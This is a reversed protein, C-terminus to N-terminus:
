FYQSTSIYVRDTFSDSVTKRLNRRRNGSSSRANHESVDARLRKFAGYELVLARLRKKEKEDCFAADIAHLNTELVDERTFGMKALAIRYQWALSTHFVAPDDSNLSFAIGCEKMKVSPHCKWDKEEGDFVWGGTELSSTPCVEVHVNRERVEKMLQRSQTMRYGHGVRSAGYIFIAARVNELARDTSEGAHLTIPIGERKARMIMEHHPEYLYKHNEGDFHEEGAAVDVGVTACPYEYRHKKVMELTPMAWDPRWTLGCLIQNVTIKFQKCGRRLGRTVAQFVAEADIRNTKSGDEEGGSHRQDEQFSEALFHPSYRVETYLTNQEFQRQCFDFALQEILDLNRRVLPMFIEFCNLMAKLSRYGRCTCLNHFERSSSCEKVLNRVHLQEGSDPEWPLDVGTPLCLLSEPNDNMYRWLFDPDFTGDLHVHLEVKPFEQVFLEQDNSYSHWDHDESLYRVLRASKHEEKQNNDDVDGNNADSAGTLRRSRRRKNAVSIVATAVFAVLSPVIDEATDM